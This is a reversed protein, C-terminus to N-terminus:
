QSFREDCGGPGISRVGGVLSTVCRHRGSAAAKATTKKAFYKKVSKLRGKRKVEPPYEHLTNYELRFEVHRGRPSM